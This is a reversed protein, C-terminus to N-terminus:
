TAGHVVPIDPMVGIGASNSIVDGGDNVDLTGEGFYGVYLSLLNMVDLNSGDGTVTVTGSPMGGGDTVDVTYYATVAEGTVSPAPLVSDM